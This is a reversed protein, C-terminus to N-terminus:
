LLVSSEEFNETMELWQDEDIDLRTLIEGTTAGIAGRENNRLVACFM